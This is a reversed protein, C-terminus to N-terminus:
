SRSPSKQKRSQGTKETLANALLFMELMGSVGWEIFRIETHRNSMKLVLPEWAPLLHRLSLKMRLRGMHLFVYWLMRWCRPCSFRALHWSEDRLLEFEPGKNARGNKNTNRLLTDAALTISNESFGLYMCSGKTSEHEFLYLSGVAMEQRKGYREENCAATWFWYSNFLYGVALQVKSFQRM